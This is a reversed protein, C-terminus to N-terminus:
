RGTRDGVSEVDAADAAVCRKLWAGMLTHAHGILQTEADRLGGLLIADGHPGLADLVSQRYADIGLWEAALAAPAELHFQVAYCRAYRFAQHPYAPSSALLTAGAPLEFTDAHWQLVDFAGPLAGFLPDAAGEDTLLVQHIGVEPTPGEYVRAGLAAALLQAGLCVGWVPIDDAV